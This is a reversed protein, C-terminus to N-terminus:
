SLSIYTKCMVHNRLFYNMGLCIHRLSLYPQKEGPQFNKYFYLNIIFNKQM